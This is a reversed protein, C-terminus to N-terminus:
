RIVTLIWLLEEILVWLCSRAHLIVLISCSDWVAGFRRYSFQVLKVLSAVRGLSFDCSWYVRVVVLFEGMSTLVCMFKSLSDYELGEWFNLLHTVYSYIWGLILYCLISGWLAWLLSKWEYSKVEKIKLCRCDILRIRMITKCM